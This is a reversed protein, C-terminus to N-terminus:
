ACLALVVLSLEVSRPVGELSGKASKPNDCSLEVFEVVVFTVVGVVDSAFRVFACFGVDLAAVGSNPLRTGMTRTTEIM